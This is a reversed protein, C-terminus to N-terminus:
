KIPICIYSDISVHFFSDIARTKEGALHPDRSKQLVNGNRWLAQLGPWCPWCPIDSHKGTFFQGISHWPSFLIDNYYSIIGSLIGLQIGFLIGLPIGPVIGSLIDSFMDFLLDSYTHSFIDSLIACCIDSFNYVYFTVIFTLYFTVDYCTDFLIGCNCPIM